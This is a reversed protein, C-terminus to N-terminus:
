QNTACAVVKQDTGAAQEYMKIVGERKMSKLVNSLKPALSANHPSLYAHIPIRQLPGARRILGKNAFCNQRLLRHVHEDFDIFIDTRGIALKQLGQLTSSVSSVSGQSGITQLGTSASEIGWRYEVRYPQNSLSHWGNVQMAPANTYASLTLSFAPEEVRALTPHAAGYAPGRGLEGDISDHEAAFTSRVPPLAIVVLRMGIRRFAETYIATSLGDTASEATPALSAMMVTQQPVPQLPAASAFRSVLLSAGIMSVLSKKM